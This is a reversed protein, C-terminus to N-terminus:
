VVIFYNCIARREVHDAYQLIAKITLNFSPIKKIEKNSNVYIVYRYHYYFVYYPITMIIMKM